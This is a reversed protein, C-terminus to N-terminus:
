FITPFLNLRFFVVVATSREIYIKRTSTAKYQIGTKDSGRFVLQVFELSNNFSCPRLRALWQAVGM